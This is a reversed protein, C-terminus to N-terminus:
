KAQSFLKMTVRSISNWNTNDWSLRVSLKLLFGASCVPTTSNSFYPLDSWHKTLAQGGCPRRVTSLFLNHHWMQSTPLLYSNILTIVFQSCHILTLSCNTTRYHSLKHFVTIFCLFLLTSKWLAAKNRNASHACRSCWLQVCSFPPSHGTFGDCGEPCEVCCRFQFHISSHKSRVPKLLLPFVSHINLSRFCQTVAGKHFISNLQMKPLQGMSLSYIDPYRLMQQM